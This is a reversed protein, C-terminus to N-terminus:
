ANLVRVLRYGTGGSDNAGFSLLFSGIYVASDQFDAVGPWFSVVADLVLPNAGADACAIVVTGAGATIRAAGAGTDDRAWGSSYLANWTLGLSIGSGFGCRGRAGTTGFVISDAAGAMTLTQGSTVTLGFDATLLGDFHGTTATLGAAFTAAGTTGDITLRTVSNTALFLNQTESTGVKFAGAGAHYLFALNGGAGSTIQFYTQTASTDNGIYFSTSAGAGANTNRVALAHDGAKSVSFTGTTGSIGGSSTVAGCGLTGAVTAGALALRFVETANINFTMMGSLAYGGTTATTLSVYSLQQTGGYYVSQVVLQETASAGLYFEPNGSNVANRVQLLNGSFTGTTGSISGSSTVAGANWIGSTITGVTTLSSTVVNSALTTGSLNAAPFSGATVTGVTVISSSGAAPAFFADAHFASAGLGHATTTLGEHTTVLGSYYSGHQADLKDSDAATGAVALYLGAHNGWGYATNWNAPSIWSRVGADTSSLVYGTAAPNGLVPEYTGAHNHGSASYTATDLAFTGAATMKVFSASVYSIAALSTLNAHATQYYSASQGNLKSSDAATAAVALFDGTAAWAASGLANASWAVDTASAVLVKGTPTGPFALRVWKPTAGQGTIIDGRVVTGATTDGHYASLLDHAIPTWTTPVGSTIDAWAHVHSAAAAGVDSYTLGHAGFAYTTAGTAKLFHGTTLGSATHGTTDILAHASPAFTSPVGTLDAWAVGGVRVWASVDSRLYGGAAGFGTLDAPAHTHAALAVPDNVTADVYAAISLFSREIGRRFEAENQREYREAPAPVPGLAPRRTTSAM